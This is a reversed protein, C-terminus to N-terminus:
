VDLAAKLRYILELADRPTLEDASVSKLLTYIPDEQEKKDNSPSTTTKFLPLDDVLRSLSIRQEGSELLKLVEEARKLVDDPLGALRGVHIGYSRDANGEVVEHMFVVDGKWEKVRMTRCVLNELRKSLDTLEHFHTAFLTRCRNLNHLQEITAWAISLGDFTATGRGIEDLIVLSRDSAQNLIAATEVMEVMFTARGQALDDAAGVRSFLRDVVGIVAESAPVYSGIQAMLMILANQRLFTSKGAMNPGTLLWLRGNKPEDTLNCNNPIFSGAGEYLSSEVVPHRGEIINFDKNDQVKPCCYNNNIALDALGTAVDISALARAAMIIFNSCSLIENVIKAYIDLEIVLAREAAKSIQEELESLEVNTFRVANSMTQRHLLGHQEALNAKGDEMLKEAQAATVEIFYGLVNNHRIKLTSIETQDAFRQQLNAITKRSADRLQIQEDLIESYGPAIFGGDRTHIPLSDNLALELNEVIKHHDGLQDRLHVLEGLGISSSIHEGLLIVIEGASELGARLTSLDRPGGRGLSLRSLSREIDPCKRLSIRIDERLKSSQVFSSVLNLRSSIEIVNTLPTTLREALLRAGAGTLTKDIAELLSGKRNGSLTKTLELNRRTALDIEMVGGASGLPPLIKPSSLLPQSDLQTIFLYDLLAGTAAMMARNINGLSDLTTLSYYDKIRREANISDFRADPLPTIVECLQSLSKYFNNNETFGEPLLLEGPAVRALASSLNINNHDNKGLSQIWIESTSMDLWSLGLEGGSIGVAALYNHQRADLLVEESLTGPTVIRVVERRVISKSGRKKALKPDEVQECVAVRHGAKILKPLYQEAAHVPVGAMPVPTGDQHGRKTLAIDLAESAVVADEFFLEYFDGMRFFLLCEPHDSKAKHWQEFMPTTGKKDKPVSEGGESSQSHSTNTRKDKLPISM